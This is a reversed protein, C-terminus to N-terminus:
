PMSIDGVIRTDLCGWNKGIRHPLAIIGWRGSSPVLACLLETVPVLECLVDISSYPISGLHGLNGVLVMVM